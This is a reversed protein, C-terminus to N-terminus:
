PRALIAVSEVPRSASPLSALARSESALSKGSGSEAGRNSARSVPSRKSSGTRHTGRRFGASRGSSTARAIPANKAACPAPSWIPGVCPSKAGQFRRSVPPPQTSTSQSAARSLRLRLRAGRDIDRLGLRPRRLPEDPRHARSLTFAALYGAQAAATATREDARGYPYALTECSGLRKEITARSEVLERAVAAEGLDPLLPHSATHSGVEWGAERLLELEPWRLPLLHSEEAHEMGPWRLPEGSEVFSTVAFVTAPFGIEELIPRARLVSRFGDDFTVVVARAALTGDQRRREAEAATFGVYGRRRLLSLQARLAQEPIALAPSWAGIAHYALLLPRGNMSGGGGRLSALKTTRGAHSRRRISVGAGPTRPRAGALLPRELGDM